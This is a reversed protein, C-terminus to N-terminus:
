MSADGAVMANPRVTFDALVFSASITLYIREFVTFRACFNVFIIGFYFLTLLVAILIRCPLSTEFVTNPPNIM